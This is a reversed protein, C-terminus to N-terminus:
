TDECRNSGKESRHAPVKQFCCISGTIQLRIEQRCTCRYMKPFPYINTYLCSQTHMYIYAYKSFFLLLMSINKIKERKSTLCQSREGRWRSHLGATGPSHCSWGCLRNWLRPPKPRLMALLPPSPPSHPLSFHHRTQIPLEWPLFGALNLEIRTEQSLGPSSSIFGYNQASSQRVANLGAM